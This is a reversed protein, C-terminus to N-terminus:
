FEPHPSKAVSVQDIDDVLTLWIDGENRTTEVGSRTQHPIALSGAHEMTLGPPVSCNFMINRSGLEM